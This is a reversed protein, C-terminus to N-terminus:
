PLPANGPRSSARVTSDLDGHLLGGSAADRFLPKRATGAQDFVRRVPLLIKKTRESPLVTARETMTREIDSLSDDGGFRGREIMGPAWLRATDRTELANTRARARESDCDEMAATPEQAM